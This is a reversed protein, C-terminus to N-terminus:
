CAAGQAEKELALISVRPRLHPEAGSCGHLRILCCDVSRKVKSAGSRTARDSLEDRAKIAFATVPMLDL